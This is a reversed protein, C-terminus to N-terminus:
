GDNSKEIDSLIIDDVNEIHQSHLVTVNGTTELVAAKVDKLRLVNAERLKVMLDDESIHTKKMNDRLMVGEKMLLVPTNAIFYKVRESRHYFITFILQFLIIVILAVAGKILSHRDDLIITALISGIAITSAFDISTMKSFTRLGAMRVILILLIYICIVSAVTKVLIPWSAFLWNEM